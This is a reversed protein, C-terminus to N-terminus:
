TAATTALDSELEHRAVNFAVTDSKAGSERATLKAMYDTISAQLATLNIASAIVFAIMTERGLVIFM